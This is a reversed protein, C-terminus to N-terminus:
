PRGGPPSWYGARRYHAHLREEYARDPPVAPDFEPGGKIEERTLDVSVQQASWSVDSIWGKSVLVKRGPLWNRTDVVLYRIAWGEPDVLLDEVHGLDGDLAKIYYGSIESASRLNPDGKPEDARGSALGPMPDSPYPEPVAAIPPAAFAGAGGMYGVGGWYPTWGYHSYISAELQRSVPQDHSVPPSQEIQRRTLQARIRRTGSGIRSLALPALLVSRGTLWSGANVVAWRITWDRDDFLLDSLTGVDGDTAEVTAGLLSSTPQLM